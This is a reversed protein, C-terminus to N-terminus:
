CTAFPDGLPLGVRVFTLDSGGNSWCLQNDKYPYPKRHPEDTLGITQDTNCVVASKHNGLWLGRDAYGHVGEGLYRDGAATDKRLHRDASGNQVLVWAREPKGHPVGPDIVVTGPHAACFPRGSIFRRM